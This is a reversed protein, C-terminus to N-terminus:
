LFDDQLVTHQTSPTAGSVNVDTPCMSWNSWVSRKTTWNWIHSCSSTVVFEFVSNFSRLPQTHKHTTTKRKKLMINSNFSFRDSSNDWLFYPMLNFTSAKYIINLNLTVDVEQFFYAPQFKPPRFLLRGQKYPLVDAPFNFVVRCMLTTQVFLSSQM